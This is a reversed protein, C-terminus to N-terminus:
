EKQMNRGTVFKWITAGIAAIGLVIAKGAKAFLLGLKGLIGSKAAAVAAGGTILGTLGYAAIKDGSVWESHKEGSKFEFGTLMTKITPVVKPLEEPGVVLTVTMVGRRGLIRINYNTGDAQGPSTLRTAWVLNKTSPDYAPPYVWGGVHVEQWGQSRRYANSQETGEQMQKLIANADLKDKEADAVYGVDDFQFVLFWDGGQMPMLVGLDNSPPNQTIQNWLAAGQAGTFRYGEPIKIEANSGIAATTPGIQWQIQQYLNALRSQEPNLEAPAQAFAVGASLLSLSFLLLLRAAARVGGLKVVVASGRSKVM